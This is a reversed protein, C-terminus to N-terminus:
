IQIWNPWVQVNFHWKFDSGCWSFYLQLYAQSFFLKFQWRFWRHPLFHKSPQWGHVILHFLRIDQPCVAKMSHRMLLSSYKQGYNWFIRSPLWQMEITFRYHKKRLSITVFVISAQPWAIWTRHPYWGVRESQLCRQWHRSSQPWWHRLIQPWGQSGFSQVTCTWDVEVLIQPWWIAISHRSYM